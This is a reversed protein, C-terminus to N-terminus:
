PKKLQMFSSAFLFEQCYSCYLLDNCEASFDTSSSSSGSSDTSVTLWPVTVNLIRWFWSVGLITQFETDLVATRSPLQSLMPTVEWGSWGLEGCGPQKPHLIHTPRRCTRNVAVTSFLHNTHETCLIVKYSNLKLQQKKNSNSKDVYRGFETPEYHFISNFSLSIKTHSCNQIGQEKRICMKM